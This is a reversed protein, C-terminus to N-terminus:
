GPTDVPEIWARPEIPPLLGRSDAAIVLAWIHKCVQFRDQFYPCECSGIFGDQERTLEVHYERTGYVSATVKDDFGLISVVAGNRFYASGKSRTQEPVDPALVLALSLPRETPPM